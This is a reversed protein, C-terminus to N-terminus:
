FNNGGQGNPMLPAPVVKAFTVAGEFGVDITWKGNMTMGDKSLTLKIAVSHKQDGTGDYTKVLYLNQGDIVGKMDASLGVASSEGFTQVELMRGLIIMNQQEIVLSCPVQKNSKGAQYEYNGIWMGDIKQLEAAYCPFVLFILLVLKNM